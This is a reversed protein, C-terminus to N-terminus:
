FGDKYYYLTQQDLTPNEGLGAAIFYPREISTVASMAGYPDNASVRGPVFASSAVGAVTGTRVFKVMAAVAAAAAVLILIDATKM